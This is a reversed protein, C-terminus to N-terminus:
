PPNLLLNGILLIVLVGVAMSAVALVTAMGIGVLVEATMPRERAFLFSIPFVPLTALGAVNRASWKGSPTERKPADRAIQGLLEVADATQAGPVAVRFGGLARQMTWDIMGLQNDFVEAQIGASQLAGAAIHAEQLDSFSAVVTLAM